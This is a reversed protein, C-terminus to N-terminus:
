FIMVKENWRWNFRNQKELTSLIFLHVFGWQDSKSHLVDWTESTTHWNDKLWKEKIEKKKLVIKNLFNEKICRSTRAWNSWKNYKM